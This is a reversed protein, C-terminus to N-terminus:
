EWCVRRHGVPRCRSFSCSSRGAWYGAVTGLAIGGLRAGIVICAFLIVLEIWIM